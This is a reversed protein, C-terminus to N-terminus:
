QWICLVLVLMKFNQFQKLCEDYNDQGWLGESAENMNEDRQNVVVCILKEFSKGKWLRQIRSSMNDETMHSTSM